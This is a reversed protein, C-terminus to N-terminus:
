HSHRIQDNIGSKEFINRFYGSITYNTDIELSIYQKMEEVAPLKKRARM